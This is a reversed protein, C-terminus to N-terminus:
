GRRGGPGIAGDERWVALDVRLEEIMERPLSALGFAKEAGEDEEEGGGNSKGDVHDPALDGDTM